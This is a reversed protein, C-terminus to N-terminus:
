RLKWWPRLHSMRSCHLSSDCHKTLNWVVWLVCISLALEHIHMAKMKVLILSGTIILIYKFVDHQITTKDASLLANHFWSVRCKTQPYSEYYWCSNMGTGETNMSMIGGSFVLWVPVNYNVWSYVSQWWCQLLFKMRTCFRAVTDHLCLSVLLKPSFDAVGPVPIPKMNMLGLHHQDDYQVFNYTTHLVFDLLWEQISSVCGQIVSSAFSISTHVDLPRSLLKISSHKGPRLPM